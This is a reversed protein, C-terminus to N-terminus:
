RPISWCEIYREVPIGRMRRLEIMADSLEDRRAYLVRDVAELLQENRQELSRIRERLEKKKV